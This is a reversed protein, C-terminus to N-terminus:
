AFLQGQILKKKATPPKRRSQKKIRKLEHHRALANSLFYSRMEYDIDKRSAIEEKLCAFWDAPERRELRARAIEAGLRRGADKLLKDLFPRAVTVVKM